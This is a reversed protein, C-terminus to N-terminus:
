EKKACRQTGPAGFWYTIFISLNLLSSTRNKFKIKKLSIRWVLWPAGVGPV